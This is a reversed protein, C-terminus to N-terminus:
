RCGRPHVQLAHAHRAVAIIVGTKCARLLEPTSLIEQTSGDGLRVIVTPHNGFDDAYSGFRVVSAAERVIPGPSQFGVVIIATGALLVVALAAKWEGRISHWLSDM